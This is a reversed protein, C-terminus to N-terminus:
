STRPWRILLAPRPPSNRSCRTATTASIRGSRMRIPQVAPPSAFPNYFSNVAGTGGTSVADVTYTIDDPNYGLYSLTFSASIPNGFTITTPATSFDTDPNFCIVAARAEHSVGFIGAAVLALTSVAVVRSFKCHRAM